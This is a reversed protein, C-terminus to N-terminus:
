ENEPPKSNQKRLTLIPTKIQFDHVLGGYKLGKRKLKKEMESILRRTDQNWPHLLFFLDM